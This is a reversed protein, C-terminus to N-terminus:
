SKDNCNLRSNLFYDKDKIKLIVIDVDSDERAENRAYSGFLAIEEIGFKDNLEQKHQKLFRLIEAKDM